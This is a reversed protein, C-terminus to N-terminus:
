PNRGGREPENETRIDTRGMSVRREGVVVVFVPTVQPASHGLRAEQGLMNDSPAHRPSHLLGEGVASDLMLNIELKKAAVKAARAPPPQEMWHSLLPRPARPTPPQPSAKGGGLLPQPTSFYSAPLM